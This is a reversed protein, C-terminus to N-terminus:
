IASVVGASAGDPSFGYVFRVVKELPMECPRAAAGAALRYFNASVFDPGGLERAYLTTTAGGASRTLTVGWRRGGYAGERYGEPWATIQHLLTGADLEAINRSAQDIASIIVGDTM